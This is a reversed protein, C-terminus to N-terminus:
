PLGVFQRFRTACQLVEKGTFIRMFVILYPPCSNALHIPGKSVPRPKFMM